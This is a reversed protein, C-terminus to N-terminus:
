SESGTSVHPQATPMARPSFGGFLGEEGVEASGVSIEASPSAEHAVLSMGLAPGVRVLFSEVRTLCDHLESCLLKAEDFTTPWV